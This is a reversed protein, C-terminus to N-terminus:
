AARWQSRDQSRYVCCAVLEGSRYDLVFRLHGKTMTAFVRFV